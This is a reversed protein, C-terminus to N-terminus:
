VFFYILRQFAAYFVFNTMLSCSFTGNLFRERYWQFTVVQTLLLTLLLIQGAFVFLNEVNKRLVSIVLPGDRRDEFM